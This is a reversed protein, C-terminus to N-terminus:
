VPDKLPGDGGHLAEEEIVDLNRPQDAGVQAMAEHHSATSSAGRHAGSKNRLSELHERALREAEKIDLRRLHQSIDYRGKRILAQLENNQAENLVIKKNEAVVTEGGLHLSFNDLGVLAYIYEEEKAPEQLGHQLINNQNAKNNDNPGQPANEAAAKAKQKDLLSM